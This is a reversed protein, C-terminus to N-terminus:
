VEDFLVTMALLKLSTAIEDILHPTPSQRLRVEKVIVTDNSFKTM